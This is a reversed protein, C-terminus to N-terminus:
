KATSRALPCDSTRLNVTTHYGPRVFVAVFAFAAAGTELRSLDLLRLELQRPLLANAVATEIEVDGARVRLELQRDFGALGDSEGHRLLDALSTSDLVGEELHRLAAPTARWVEVVPRRGSRHPILHQTFSWRLVRALRLRAEDREEPALLGLFRLLASATDSARLSTLVLHGTEAAELLIRAEARNRVESVLLIRAGQRLADALGQELSPTDIGVERQNVTAQNHRHLFEIPDEVTVVHCPRTANAEGLMAALTTTRGSGAPGNVLVIGHPERCATAVAEPLGLDSIAPVREPISRLSVAFTGRQSFVAVRFRSVGPVSYAFNAAGLERVRAAVAPPAMSLLHLVVAETQFPSLREVGPLELRVLKGDVHAQPPCGVALLVDESHPAAVLIGQLFGPLDFNLM